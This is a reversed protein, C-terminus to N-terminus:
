FLNLSEIFASSLRILMNRITNRGLGALRPGSDVRQALCARERRRTLWAAFEVMSKASPYMGEDLRLEQEELFQDFTHEDTAVKGATKAAIGGKKQVAARDAALAAAPVPAPKGVPKIEELLAQIAVARRRLVESRRQTVEEADGSVEKDNAKGMSDAGVIALAGGRPM